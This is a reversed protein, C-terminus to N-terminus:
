GSYKATRNGVLLSMLTAFYALLHARSLHPHLRGVLWTPIGASLPGIVMVLIARVFQWNHLPKVAELGANALAVAAVAGFLFSLFPWM